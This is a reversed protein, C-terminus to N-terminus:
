EEDILGIEETYPSSADFYAALKMGPCRFSLIDGTAKDVTVTCSKGCAEPSASLM